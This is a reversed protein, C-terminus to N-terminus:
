DLYIVDLIFVASGFLAQLMPNFFQLLSFFVCVCSSIQVPRCLIVGLPAALM